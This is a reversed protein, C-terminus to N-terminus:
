ERFDYNQSYIYSKKERPHSTGASTKYMYRVVM